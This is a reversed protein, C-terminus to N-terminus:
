DKKKSKKKEERYKKVLDVLSPMIGHVIEQKEIYGRHKAQTKLFFMISAREGDKINSILKSEVYDILEEKQNYVEEAFAEKKLWDYYTKRGVNTARCAASINYGQDDLMKLFNKQLKTLEKKM